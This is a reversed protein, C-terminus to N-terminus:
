FNNAIGSWIGQRYAYEAEQNKDLANFGYTADQYRLTQDVPTEIVPMTLSTNAPKVQSYIDNWSLGQKPQQGLADPLNVGSVDRLNPLIPTDPM